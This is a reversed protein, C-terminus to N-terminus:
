EGRRYFREEGDIPQSQVMSIEEQLQQIARRVQYSQEDLHEAIDQVRGTQVIDDVVVPEEDGFAAQQDKLLETETPLVEYVSGMLDKIQESPESMASEVAKLRDDVDDFRSEIKQIGDVLDYVAEKMENDAGSSGVQTGSMDNSVATRIMGSLSTYNDSEEVHNEWDDKLDSDILLNVRSKSNDDGNSGTPPM